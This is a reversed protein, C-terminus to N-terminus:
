NELYELVAVGIVVFVLSWVIQTLIENENTYDITHQRKLNNFIYQILNVSKLLELMLM